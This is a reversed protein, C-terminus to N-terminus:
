DRVIKFSIGESRLSCCKEMRLVTKTFDALAARVSSEDAVVFMCPSTFSLCDYASYINFM